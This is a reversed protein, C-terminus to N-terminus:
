NNSVVIIAHSSACLKGLFSSFLLIGRAYGARFTCLNSRNLGIAAEHPHVISISELASANPRFRNFSDSVGSQFELNSAFCWVGWGM